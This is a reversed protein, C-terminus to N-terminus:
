KIRIDFASPTYFVDRKGGDEAKRVAKLGSESRRHRQKGERECKM